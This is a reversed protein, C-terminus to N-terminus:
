VRTGCRNRPNKTELGNELKRALLPCDHVFQGYLLLNKAFKKQLVNM